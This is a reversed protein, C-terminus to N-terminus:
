NNLNLHIKNNNFKLENSKYKWNIMGNENLENMKNEDM